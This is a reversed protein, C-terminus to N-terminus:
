GLEEGGLAHADARLEPDNSFLALQEPCSSVDLEGSTKTERRRSAPSRSALSFSDRYSERSLQQRACNVVVDLDRSNLDKRDSARRLVSEGTEESEERIVRHASDIFKSSGGADYAISFVRYRPEMLMWSDRLTFAVRRINM